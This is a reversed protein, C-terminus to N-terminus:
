SHYPRKENPLGLNSFWTQNAAWRKDFTSLKLTRMGGLTEYNWKEHAKEIFKHMVLLLNSSKVEFTDSVADSKLRLSSLGCERYKTASFNAGYVCNKSCLAEGDKFGEKLGQQRLITIWRDRL